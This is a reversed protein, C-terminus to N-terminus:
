IWLLACAKDVFGIIRTDSSDQVFRGFLLAHYALMLDRQFGLLQCNTQSPSLSGAPVCLFVGERAATQKRRVTRGFISALAPEDVIFSTPPTPM